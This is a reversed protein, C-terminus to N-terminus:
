QIPSSHVRLILSSTKFHVYSSVYKQSEVPRLAMHAQFLYHMIMFEFTYMTWLHNTIYVCVEGLSLLHLLITGTKFVRVDYSEYPIEKRWFRAPFSAKQSVFNLGLLWINRLNRLVYVSTEILGKIDLVHQLSNIAEIDFVVLTEVTKMLHFTIFAVFM